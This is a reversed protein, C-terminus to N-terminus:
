RTAPVLAPTGTPPAATATPSPTLTPTATPSPTPTATPVGPTPTSATTATALAAATATPTGMGPSPTGAAPTASPSATASPSPVPLIATPVPSAPAPQATGPAQLTPSPAVTSPPTTTWTPAPTPTPSQTVTPSSTPSPTPIATATSTGTPTASPTPTPIPIYLSRENSPPSLTGDRAYSRLQVFYQSGARVDAYRYETALGVDQVHTYVGSRTGIYVRYGAIGPDAVAPWRVRVSGISLEPDPPPAPPDLVTTAGSVTTSTTGTQSTVSASVTITQTVKAGAPITLRTCAQGQGTAVTCTGAYSSGITSTTRSLNSTFAGSTSATASFSVPAGDSAREGRSNTITAVIEVSQGPGLSVTAPAPALSVSQANSIRAVLGNIEQDAYNCSTTLFAAVYYEYEGDALWAGSSHKGDWAWSAKGDSPTTCSSLRLYPFTPLVVGFIVRQVSPHLTATLVSSQTARSAFTTPVAEASLILGSLTGRLTRATLTQVATGSAVGDPDSYSVEVDYSTNPSLGAITYRFRDSSRAMTTPCATGGPCPSSYLATSAAKWRVSATGDGDADGAFPAEVLITSSGPTVNTTGAHTTPDGQYITPVHTPPTSRTGVANRITATFYNASGLTLPVSMSWSTLGGQLQLSAVVADAGDILGDDGADSWIEVLANADAAQVSGNISFTGSSTWTESAPSIITPPSPDSIPASGTAFTFVFPANALGLGALDLASSGVTATFQAGPALSAYPEFSMINGATGGWGFSGGSGSCLPTGGVVYCPAGSGSTQRLSFASQAATRDMAESFTLNVRTNVGVSTAGDRPTTPPVAWPPTTDPAAATTFSSAFGSPMQTAGTNTATTRVAIAYETSNELDVAPTFTLTSGSWAFTGGNQACLPTAGIVYCPSGAGSIQQLSFAQETSRADMAQSFTVAVATNAGASSSGAYPSVSVVSPGGSTPLTRISWTYASALPTADAGRAASSVAFTYLTDAALDASPTCTAVTDGSSWSWGCTVPPTASFASQTSLRDMVASFTVQITSNRPVASSGSSPSTAAVSPPASVTASVPPSEASSWFTGTRARIVFTYTGAEGSAAYDLFTAATNGAVSYTAPAAPRDVYVDYSDAEEVASWSVRITTGSVSTSLGGPAPLTGTTFTNAPIPLSAAFYAATRGSSQGGLVLYLLLIGLLANVHARAHWRTRRVQVHRLRSPHNLALALVVLPSREPEGATANLVADVRGAVSPHETRLHAASRALLERAYVDHPFEAVARSACAVAELWRGDRGASTAGILAGEYRARDAHAARAGPPPVLRCPRAPGAREGDMM